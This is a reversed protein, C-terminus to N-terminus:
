RGALARPLSCRVDDRAPVSSAGTELQEPVDGWHVEVRRDYALGSGTPSSEGFWATRVTLPFDRLVDAVAEARCASLHDNYLASSRSDAHGLLVVTTGRPLTVALDQL